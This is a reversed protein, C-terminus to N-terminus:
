MKFHGLHMKFVLFYLLSIKKTNKRYRIGNLFIKKIFLLFFDNVLRNFINCMKKLTKGIQGEKNHKIRKIIRTGQTEFM